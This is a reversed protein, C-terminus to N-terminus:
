KGIARIYICRKVKIKEEICEEMRREKAKEDITALVKKWAADKRRVTAKIDNSWWMKKPSKEGVIVSGCVERVSGVM